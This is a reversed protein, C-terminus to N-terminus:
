AEEELWPYALGAMFGLVSQRNEHNARRQEPTLQAEEIVDFNALMCEAAIYATGVKRPLRGRPRVAVAGAM